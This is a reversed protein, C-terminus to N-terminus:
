EGGGPRLRRTELVRRRAERRQDAPQLLRLREAFFQAVLRRVSRLAELLEGGDGPAERADEFRRVIDAAPRLGKVVDGRSRADNASPTKRNFSPPRLSFTMTM